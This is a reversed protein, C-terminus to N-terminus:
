ETVLIEDIFWRSFEGESPTSTFRIRTNETAGSIKLSFTKFSDTPLGTVVAYTQGDITGGGVIEVTASTIDPRGVDPTTTVAKARIAPTRYACAKFSLNLDGSIGLAPTLLSGANNEYVSRSAARETDVYGIQAYGPREMVWTGTLGNQKEVPWTNIEGACYNAFAALRDGVFYDQGATLRDFPEFYVAGSPVSTNGEVEASIVIASHLCMYCSSGHGDAGKYGDTGDSGQPVIKLYMTTGATMPVDLHVPVTFYLYFSGGAKAKDVVISGADHWTKKDASYSVTWNSLVYKNNAAFGFSVNFDQPMDMQLPVNLWFGCEATPTTKCDLSVFGSTNFNDHAGAEAWLNPGYMKSADAGYATVELSVGKTQDIDTAVVGKILQIAANYTLKNYSIYKALGNTQESHYFSFVYPLSRIGPLVGIRMESLVIDSMGTPYVAPEASAPGAIGNVYGAGDLYSESFFSADELVSLRFRQGDKNEFRPSDSLLGGINEEIVQYEEVHVLMSEYEGSVLEAHEVAVPKIDLPTMETRSADGSPILTLLGAENRKLSAGDLLVAVEEGKGFTEHGAAMQVNIGSCPGFSDEIAFSDDFWNGGAADTVVIGKIRTGPASVALSEGPKEMQRLAKISVFGDSSAGAQVIRIEASLSNDKTALTVVASREDATNESIALAMGCSGVFEEVSPIVWDASSSKIKWSTNSSVTVTYEVGMAPAIIMDKDPNLSQMPMDPGKRCSVAGLVIMSVLLIIRNRM